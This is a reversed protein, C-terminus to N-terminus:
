ASNHLEMYPKSGCNVFTYYLHENLQNETQFKDGEVVLITWKKTNKNSLYM